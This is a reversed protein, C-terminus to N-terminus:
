ELEMLNLVRCIEGFAKMRDPVFYGFMCAVSSFSDPSFPIDQVDVVQFSLKSHSYLYTIFLIIFLICVNIM